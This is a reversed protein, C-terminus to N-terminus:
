MNDNKWNKWNGPIGNRAFGWAWTSLSSDRIVDNVEHDQCTDIKPDRQLHQRASSNKKKKKEGISHIM